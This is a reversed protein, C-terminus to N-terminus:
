LRTMTATVPRVTRSSEWAQDPAALRFGVGVPRFNILGDVRQGADGEVVEVLPGGCNAVDPGVGAAHGGAALEAEDDDVVELEEGGGASPFVTM